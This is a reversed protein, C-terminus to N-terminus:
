RTELFALLHSYAPSRPRRRLHRPEDLHRMCDQKIALDAEIYGHTTMPSSHGMWLAIIELPTGSQLLHMAATHRFTHPTITRHRLSPCRQAAATVALGLRFAVGERTLPLRSRNVFVLQDPALKHVQCWRELRRANQRWLPVTRNKRGKGHLHVEHHQLDAAKLQLMESVRAGTNYLLSFFLHDRRGSWTGTDIADIVATIESRTMFGLVPKVCRKSPIALIRQSVALFDPASEGLAFGAFSRIAALRVNRTRICNNRTRELHDLFALISDATFENFSLQDVPQQHREAIFKLLLRFTQRYSRTTHASLNRQTPLHESFFRQVLAVFADTKM